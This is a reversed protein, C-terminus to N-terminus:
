FLIECRERRDEPLQEIDEEGQNLKQSHLAREIAELAVWTLNGGKGSVSQIGRNQLAEKLIVLAKGPLYLDYCYEVSLTEFIRGSDEVFIDKFM